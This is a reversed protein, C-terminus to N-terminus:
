KNYYRFEIESSDVIFIIVVSSANDNVDEPKTGCSKVMFITVVALEDLKTECSDVISITGISTVDDDM